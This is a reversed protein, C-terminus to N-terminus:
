PTFKWSYKNAYGCSKCITDAGSQIHIINDSIIFTSEGGAVEKKEDYLNHPSEGSGIYLNGGSHLVMNTGSSSGHDNYAAIYTNSYTKNITTDKLKFTIKAPTNTDRDSEQYITLDGTLTGGTLSLKKNLGEDIYNKINSKYTIDIIDTNTLITNEGLLTTIETPTLQYTVPTILEYWLEVPTGAAKQDALWQTFSEVTNGCLAEDCMVYLVGSDTHYIGNVIEVYTNKTEFHSSVLHATAPTVNNYMAVSGIYYANLAGTQASKSWRSVGAMTPLDQLELKGHTVTLVGTTVDLSGGYITGVESPFTIPYEAVEDSKYIWPYITENNFSSGKKVWLQACNYAYTNDIIFSDKNYSAILSADNGTM